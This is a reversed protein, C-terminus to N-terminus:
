IKDLKDFLNIALIIVKFFHFMQLFILHAYDFDNYDTRIHM